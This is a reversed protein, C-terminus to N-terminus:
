AEPGTVSRAAKDLARLRDRGRRGAQSHGHCIAVALADAEDAPPADALGLLRQVMQQVQPKAAAGHGTVARKVQSPSYEGIELGAAALAALAVGRAHGLTLASRVNRAAFVGEVATSDPGFEEIVAALRAQIAALRHGLPGSAPRIVGGAVRRLRSGDLDVLGYGTARTGPDVGLIRM